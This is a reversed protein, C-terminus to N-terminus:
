RRSARPWALAVAAGGEAGPIADAWTAGSGVPWRRRVDAWPLGEAEGLGAERLAEFVTM